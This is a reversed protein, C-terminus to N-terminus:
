VVHANILSFLVNILKEFHDRILRMDDSALDCHILGSPLMSRLEGGTFACVAALKKMVFAPATNARTEFFKVQAAFM